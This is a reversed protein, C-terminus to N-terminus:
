GQPITLICPASVVVWYYEGPELQTLTSTIFGPIYWLWTGADPGTEVLYYIGWLQAGASATIGACDASLSLSPRGKGPNPAVLPQGGLPCNWTVTPGPQGATFDWLPGERTIGHNDRAVIKWYYTTGSVLIGPDYTISSQTASYPGITERFPPTSNNGFYVDYTVTDGADPGGGTWSLDPDIPVNTSHDAPSCNTPTYPLTDMEFSLSGQIIDIFDYPVDGMPDDIVGSGQSAATTDTEYTEDPLRYSTSFCFRSNEDLNSLEEWAKSAVMTITNSSYDVTVDIEHERCWLETTENYAWTDHQTDEIITAEHPTEGPWKFQTLAIKVDYGIVPPLIAGEKTGTNPNNDVDIAIAWEYDTYNGPVFDQDFTLTSPIDLLKLCVVISDGSVSLISQDSTKNKEITSLSVIGEKDRTWSNVITENDCGLALQRNVDLDSAADTIKWIPTFDDGPYDAGDDGVHCIKPAQALVRSESAFTGFPLVTGIVLCAAVIGFIKGILKGKKMAAGGENV